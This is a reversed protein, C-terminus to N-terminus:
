RHFLLKDFNLFFKPVYINPGFSSEPHISLSVFLIDSSINIVIVSEHGTCPHVLVM